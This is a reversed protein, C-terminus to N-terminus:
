LLCEKAWVRLMAGKKKPGHYPVERVEVGYNEKQLLMMVEGLNSPIEDKENLLPYLRIESAVRCFEMLIKEPKKIARHFIFDTSLLLDFEFDKFPFTPLEVWRYYNQKDKNYDSLFIHANETWQKVLEACSESETLAQIVQDVRKSMEHQDLDYYPDASLLHYGQQQAEATVSSLGAPFTLLRREHSLGNLDFIAQYDKFNYVARPISTITSLDLM